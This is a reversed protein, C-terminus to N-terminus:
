EDGFNCQLPHVSRGPLHLVGVRAFTGGENASLIRVHAIIASQRDDAVDISIVEGDDFSQLLSAPTWKDDGANDVDPITSWKEKGDVIRVWNPKDVPLGDSLNLEVLAESQDIAECDVTSTAAAPVATAALLVLGGALQAIHHM